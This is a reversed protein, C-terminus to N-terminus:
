TNSESDKEHPKWVVIDHRRTEPNYRTVTGDFRRSTKMKPERLGLDRKAVRKTKAAMPTVVVRGDERNCWAHEPARNEVSDPGGMSKPIPYHGWELEGRKHKDIPLGCKNCVGGYQRWLALKDNDSLGKRKRKM